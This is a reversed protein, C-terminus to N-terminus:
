RGGRVRCVYRRASSDYTVTERDLHWCKTTTVPADIGPRECLGPHNYRDQRCGPCVTRQILRTFERDTM